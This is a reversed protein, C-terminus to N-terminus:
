EVEEWSIIELEESVYPLLPPPDRALKADFYSERKMYGTHVGYVVWHTGVRGNSVISGHLTLHDRQCYPYYLNGSECPPADWPNNCCQYHNRGFIGKQAVFVGRAIMENPSHLPILVDDEAIVALSDSGDLTTYDLNGKLYAITEVADGDILNASAITKKGKITGEVWLNDEVFILGCGPPTTTSELTYEDEIVEYSWYWEFDTADVIHLSRVASVNTVIRIEYSGDLNFILHYGKGNPDLDSARPYYKGKNQALNKMKNLDATIGAFDFPSVPFKWFDKPGGGGCVGDCRCYSGEAKCGSPCNGASCGYSSTCLWDTSASTVLSNHTGDMRIGGNSHYKGFIERDSGAWVDDNLLYAYDAVSTAAFKVEVKRDLDPSKETWGKSTVYVGLIEGCIRKAKIKLAFKGIVENTEPDIYDHIYCPESDCTGCVTFDGQQCQPDTQSYEIGGVKCCWSKGDQIDPNGAPAHNLIYWYYNAGAEAIHLSDEWAAKKLSHRHQLLIFGLLGGLLILFIAGFVLTLTIIIGKENLYKFM